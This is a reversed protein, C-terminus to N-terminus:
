LKWPMHRNTSTRLKIRIPRVLWLSYSISSLRSSPSNLNKNSLWRSLSSSVMKLNATSWGASTRLQELTKRSLHTLDPHTKNLMKNATLTAKMQSSPHSTQLSHQLRHSLHTQATSCIATWTSNPLRSDGLSLDILSTMVCLYSSCKICRSCRDWTTRNSSWKKSRISSLTKSNSWSRSWHRDRLKTTTLVM